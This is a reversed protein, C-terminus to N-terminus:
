EAFAPNTIFTSDSLTKLFAVLAKKEHPNFSIKPKGRPNKLRKDLSPRDQIGSEYHKLVAEITAFRGDHGYPATYMVNRLSPVRFHYRDEERGTVRMRGQDRYIPHEPLGTDIYEQSTFLAGSHCTSCKQEFIKLGEKEETNLANPNGKLFDDYRTQSSQMTSMFQTLALLIRQATIKEDGFVRRFATNYYPIKGLKRVINEMTEDMEEHASIPILAQTSLDSSVGDWMLGRWYILNQLPLANRFGERGDVGHSISHGHHTFANEQIHCFACATSNDRALKGEYFLKKGLAVGEITPYNTELPYIPEPFHKPLDLPYRSVPKLPDEQPTRCAVVVLWVIIVLPFRKTNM